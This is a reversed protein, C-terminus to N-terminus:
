PVFTIQYASSFGVFDGGALPDRFWGQFNWTTGPQLDSQIQPTLQYNVPYVLTNGTSAITPFRRIGTVCLIGNTTPVFTQGTGYFLRGTTPNPVPSARLVLDNASVSASGSASLVAAGGSSNAMAPCYSIGVPSVDRLVVSIEDAYAYNSFSQADELVLIVAFDQAGVPVAVSQNQRLLETQNGRMAATVPGLTTPAGLPAGNAGLFVIDVKATDPSNSHGGLWASAEILLSGSAIQSAYGALSRTQFLRAEGNGISRVLNAGLLNQTSFSTSPLTNGAGYAGTQTPTVSGGRWGDPDDLVIPSGVVSGHEFGPNHVLNVDLPLRAATSPNELMVSVKDAFGWEGGFVGDTFVVGVRIYATSAPIEYRGLRKVLLTEFNRESPSIPGLSRTPGVLAGSSTLFDIVVSAADPRQLSGGLFASVVVQLGAQIQAANGRVDLTQRFVSNPDLSRLFSAGGGYVNSVETGPMDSTGIQYQQGLCRGLAGQWGNPDDPTLPSTSTWGGDFSPNVLLEAGIPLPAPITPATTLELELRDALAFSGFTLSNFEIRAVIAATGAPPTFIAERKVVVNEGNRASTSVYELPDSRIEVQSANLYRVVLRAQDASSGTGGFYGSARLNIGPAIVGTQVVQEVTAGSGDDRLLWGGLGYQTGFPSTPMGSTGYTVATAGGWVTSWQSLGAEFSNNVLLNGSQSAMSRGQLVAVVLAMGFVARAASSPVAKPLGLRTSIVAIIDMKSEKRKLTSTHQGKTGRDGMPHRRRARHREGGQYGLAQEVTAVALTQARAEEGRGGEAVDISRSPFV